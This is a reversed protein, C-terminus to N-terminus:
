SARPDTPRSRVRRGERRPVARAPTLRTGVILRHEGPGFYDPRHALEQYGMKQYLGRAPLNDPAVTLVAETCRREALYHEAADMLLSAAGLRRREPAIALSLIWARAPHGAEPAAIVYGAVGGRHCAILFGPGFVEEAQAFFFRPYRDDDGFVLSELADVADLDGGRYHRVYHHADSRHSFGAYENRHDM